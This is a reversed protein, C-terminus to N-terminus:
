GNPQEKYPYCKGSRGSNGFGFSVRPKCSGLQPVRLDALIELTCSPCTPGDNWHRCECKTCQKKM